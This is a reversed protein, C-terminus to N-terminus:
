KNLFTVDASGIGAAYKMLNEATRGGGFKSFFRGNHYSVITPVGEIDYPSNPGAIFKMLEPQKSTNVYAFTIDNPKNSNAVQSYDPKLHECHPCGDRFFMIVVKNPVKITYDSNWHQKGLCMGLQPHTCEDSSSAIQAANVVRGPVNYGCSM